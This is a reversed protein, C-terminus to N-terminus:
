MLAQCIKLLIKQNDDSCDGLVDKILKNGTVKVEFKRTVDKKKANDYTQVEIIMKAQQITAPEGSTGAKPNPIQKSKFSIVKVGEVPSGKSDTTRIMNNAYTDFKYDHDKADKKSVYVSAGPLPPNKISSM